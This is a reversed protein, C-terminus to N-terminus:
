IGRDADPWVADHARVHADARAGRDTRVAHDLAVRGYAAVVLDKLKTRDAGDRLVFFVAVFGGLQADAVAVRDALEAREVDASCMSM